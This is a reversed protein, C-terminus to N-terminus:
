QGLFRYTYDGKPLRVDFWGMEYKGDAVLHVTVGRLRRQKPLSSKLVLDTFTSAAKKVVQERQAPTLPEWGKGKMALVGFSETDPKDTGSPKFSGFVPSLEADSALASNYQSTLTQVDAKPILVDSPGSKSCSVFFLIVIAAALLTKTM